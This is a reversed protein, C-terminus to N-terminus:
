KKAIANKTDTSSIKTGALSVRGSDSLQRNVAAETVIM